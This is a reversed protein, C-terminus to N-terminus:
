VCSINRELVAVPINLDDEFDCLIDYIFDYRNLDNKFMGVNLMNELVKIDINM